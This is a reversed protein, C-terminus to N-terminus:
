DGVAALRWALLVAAMVGLVIAVARLYDCIDHHGKETQWYQRLTHLYGRLRAYRGM